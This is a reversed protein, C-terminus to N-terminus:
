KWERELVITGADDVSGCWGPPVALTAEPLECIAPGAVQEGPALEGHVVEADHREADFIVTRRTREATTADAAALELEPGPQSATARITVVEIPASEDRYGYREEHLAEFAARVDAVRADPLDRIPYVVM